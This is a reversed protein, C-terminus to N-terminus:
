CRVGFHPVVKARHEFAQLPDPTGVCGEQDVGFGAPVLQRPKGLENAVNGVVLAVGYGRCTQRNRRAFVQKGPGGFLVNIEIKLLAADQVDVAVLGPKVMGSPDGLQQGL